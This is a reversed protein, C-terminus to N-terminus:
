QKDFDFEDSNDKKGEKLMQPSALLWKFNYEEPMGEHKIDMSKFNGWKFPKLNPNNETTPGSIILSKLEEVMNSNTLKCDIGGSLNVMKGNIDFRSSIAHSPNKYSPDDNISSKHHYGNYRMADKFTKM